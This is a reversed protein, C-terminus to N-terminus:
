CEMVKELFRLLKVPVSGDEEESQGLVQQQLFKCAYRCQVPYELWCVYHMKLFLIVVDFLDATRPFPEKEVMVFFGTSRFM